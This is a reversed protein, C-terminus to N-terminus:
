AFLFLLISIFLITGGIAMAVHYPIWDAVLSDKFYAAPGTRRPNGLLGSIHMATSMFLMGITWTATQILGIRNIRKTM